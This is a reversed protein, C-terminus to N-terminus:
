PRRIWSDLDGRAELRGQEVLARVRAWVFASNGTGIRNAADGM